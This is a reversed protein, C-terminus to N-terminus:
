RWLIESYMNSYIKNMVFLQEKYESVNHENLQNDLFKGNVINYYRLYLYGSQIPKKYIILEKIYKPSNIGWSQLRIPEWDSYVSINEQAHSKLWKASNSDYDHIYYLGYEPGENNLTVAWPIGYAQHILSTSIILNLILIILIILYDKKVQLFRSITMCGIIFFPSLVVSVEFFSRAYSYGSFGSIKIAIPVSLCISSFILFSKDIGQLKNKKKSYRIKYYYKTYSIILGIIIMILDFRLIYRSFVFPLDKKIEIVIIDYGCYKFELILMLYLDIFVKSFYIVSEFPKETIIGYWLFILLFFLLIIEGKIIKVIILKESFLFKNIRSIIYLCIWMSLMIFFFIITSSYHSIICSIIFILLLIKKNYENLKDHFLIMVSLAFFLIAISTRFNASVYLFVKQTMFFISSLFGYFNGIYKRAIIYVILPVLSFLVPCLIKFLYESNINLIIQYLVPLISISLCADLNTETVIHWYGDNLINKFIAYEKHTDSGMIYNSRLAFPFMLSLGIFFILPPFVKDSIHNRFITSISIHLLILVFLLLLVFNNGTTNMIHTGLISLLLLLFTFILLNIEKINLKKLNKLIYNYNITFKIKSKRYVIIALILIIINFFITVPITSLPRNYGFYCLAISIFLGFFMLFSISLGISLVFKDIQDLDNLGLIRLIFIGPFITFVTFGLIQRLIPIDLFICIDMLLLLSFLVYLCFKKNECSM